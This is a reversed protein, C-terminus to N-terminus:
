QESVADARINISLADVHSVLEVDLYAAGACM